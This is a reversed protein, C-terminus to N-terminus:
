AASSVVGHQQLYALVERSGRHTSSSAAKSVAGVDWPCGNDRLWRLTTFHGFAAARTCAHATMPCQQSLLYECVATHGHEAAACMTSAMLVAGPQQAVWAVIEVSGSAAAKNLTLVSSWGADGHECAWRLMESDGREAAFSVVDFSWPCGVSHLRKVAANDNRKAASFMSLATFKVGHQTLWTLVEVSAGGAIAYMGIDDALKCLPQSSLWQLMPLSQQAAAIKSLEETQKLSVRMGVAEAALLTPFDAHKAAAAACKHSTFTLGSDHALKVLAPSSLAASYSNGPPVRKSIRAGHIAVPTLIQAGGMDAYVERWLKSVAAIIFYHGSGVFSFVGNLGDADSLGNSVNIPSAIFRAAKVVSM